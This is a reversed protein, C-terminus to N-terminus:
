AVALQGPSLAGHIIQQSPYELHSPHGDPDTRPKAPTHPAVAAPRQRQSVTPALLIRVPPGATPFDASQRVVHNEKRLRV